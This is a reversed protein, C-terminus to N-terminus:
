LRSNLTKGIRSIVRMWNTVSEDGAIFRFTKEVDDVIGAFHPVDSFLIWVYINGKREFVFYFSCYYNIIIEKNQNYQNNFKLYEKDCSRLSHLM